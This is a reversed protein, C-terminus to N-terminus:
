SSNGATQQLREPEAVSRRLLIEVEMRALAKIEKQCQGFFDFM